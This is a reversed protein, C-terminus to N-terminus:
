VSYTTFVPKNPEQEDDEELESEIYADLADTASKFWETVANAGEKDGANLIIMGEGAARFTAADVMEDPITSPETYGPLNKTLYRKVWGEAMSIIEDELETLATPSEQQVYKKLLIELRDTDTYTAM